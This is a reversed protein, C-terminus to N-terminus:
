SLNRAHMINMCVCTYSQLVVHNETVHHVPIYNTRQSTIYNTRQSTVYQSTTPERIHHIPIYNTRHSTIYQSITPERHRSTNPYLQNESTIYQYITSERHCSTNPYLQNETFHHIPICNASQSTVYQFMNPTCVDSCVSLTLYLCCDSLDGTNGNVEFGNTEKWLRSVLCM